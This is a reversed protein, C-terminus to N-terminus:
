TRVKLLGHDYAYATAGARTSVGLKAFINSIHRAVTKESIVLEDGIGRNTKGRALLLLVDLERSTLGAANSAGSQLPRLAALDAAAGLREFTAAAQDFELRAGEEDGLASCCAGLLVRTRAAAYPVDLKLWRTLADRLTAVAAAPEGEARLVAGECLLAQAHLMPSAGEAALARFRDCAARADEVLGAAVFIEIAPPLNKTLAVRGAPTQVVRGIMAAAAQADGQALRLMALGPQPEHGCEDARRFAEEAAAMDGRLRQMEGQQYFASGAAPQVLPESLRTCALRADGLADEWLGSAQFVASRYALCEGRYAVLDPQADCWQSLEATWERARRVDFTELCAEIVGCYTDGTVIPSLRGDRLALLVEDLRAMGKAAEGLRILARGQGHTAIALLDADDSREGIEAARVFTELSSSPDADCSEIAGPILLWGPAAGDIQREEVLRQARGFWGGGKAVEGSKLFGFAAWFACRVAGRADGAHLYFEYGRSWADSWSPEDGILYAVTALRELHPGDLPAERDAASLDRFADSWRKEDYAADGSALADRQSMAM